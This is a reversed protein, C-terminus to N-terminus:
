KVNFFVEQLRQKPKLIQVQDQPFISITDMIIFDINWHIIFLYVFM